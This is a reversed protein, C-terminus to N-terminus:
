LHLQLAQLPNTIGVAFAYQCCVFINGISKELAIERAKQYEKEIARMNAEVTNTEFDPENFGIQAASIVGLGGAKAVAGALGGLSVGVGMGGQVIPYKIKKDGIELPLYTM